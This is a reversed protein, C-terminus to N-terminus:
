STHAALYKENILISATKHQTPTSSTCRWFSLLQSNSPLISSLCNLTIRSMVLCGALRTGRKLHCFLCTGPQLFFIRSYYNQDFRTIPIQMIQVSYCPVFHGRHVEKFSWRGSVWGIFLLWHICLFLCHPEVLILCICVETPFYIISLLAFTSFALVFTSNILDKKTCTHLLLHLLFLKSSAIKKNAQDCAEWTKWITIRLTDTSFLPYQQLKLHRKEKQKRKLCTKWYFFTKFM